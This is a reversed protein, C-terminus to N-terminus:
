GIKYCKTFPNKIDVPTLAILPLKHFKGFM